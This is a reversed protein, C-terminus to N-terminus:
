IFYMYNDIIQEMTDFRRGYIEVYVFNECIDGSKYNKDYKQLKLLVLKFYHGVKKVRSPFDLPYYPVYSRREM